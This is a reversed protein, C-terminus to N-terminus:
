GEAQQDNQQARRKLDLRKKLRQQGQKLEEAQELAQPPAAQISDAQSLYAALTSVTPSTFMEAIPITRNFAEQLRSHVQVILLSHGGLDFFNDHIGVREVNLASQWIEAVIRETASQPAVYSVGSEASVQSPDPLARRDVKGNPTLPIELINIFLSPILASPVREQMFCRLLNGTPAPSQHPVIYAVLAKDPSGGGPSDAEWVIVIAAQVNPHQTLTAEVESLEVRVGRIKVQHDIRGIIELAGDARYRGRDGTYDLIDGPDDRFHNPRFRQRTEEPANIYGRSCFSTRIVVQGPEGIGCLQNHHDLVLMQTEPLPWGGPQIGHPPTEPVVFFSKALTTEATGYLNIIGGDPFRARWAQVFTDVLPEGSFFIWRLAPVATSPPLNALWSQALSPVGHLFTVRERALWPMLRAPDLHIGEEPVCLTAGSSLPLFLDRMAVDFSLGIMQASRDQPGIAFLERQWHLFHALGAHTGIVGKPVGTTGSTFCIYAVDEPTIQPLDVNAVNAQHDVADGQQPAVQIVSLTDLEAMWRDAPRYEGVYICRQVGAKQLMLQQRQAPFDQSLLLLVGGSRLVSLASAILGFSRPGTVAVVDGRALGGAILTQALQRSTAALDAYSWSIDGHRIAPHQPTREVWAAFLEPVLPHLPAALPITPDPLVACAKPTRLSYASIPLDPRAAIQELLYCLQDLLSSMREATFRDRQYALRLSIQEDQEEAYLTLAFNAEAEVEDLLDLSLGPLELASRPMNRFNLLVDFIPHRSLTREPQMEEVLKEFPLYQHAYGDLVVERVRGLLEDFRPNGSLDVRLALINVLMGILGETEEWGRNAVPAGVIVDAQEAQRSLVMTFAALLTMFLTGDHSRSLRHLAATLEKPLRISHSEAQASTTATHPYDTPLQLTPLTGGLQQRWYDLEHKGLEGRLWDQQWHAFDVYQIPLAPLVDAGVASRGDALAQAFAQYHSTLERVLVGISWGDAIIHDLVVALVYAEPARRLLLCRLLPGQALDFPRRAEAQALRRVEAAQTEAPLETLDILPLELTLHEAIRQVPQGKVTVFTSRLTEHRRVVANLSAQLVAIQLPGRINVAAHINYASSEPDLQRIFWLRQQAFSLPLEGDRAIVQIPQPPRQDSRQATQVINQALGAITPTEFLRRLPLEQGFSTRIRAILQAALLSHGGLEFFSDHIGIPTVGLVETWIKAIAAEIPTRPAVYQPTVDRRTQAPIPLAKRDLKGNASLPLEDLVVFASPIMYEPLRERLYGRLEAALGETGPVERRLGVREHEETSQEKNEVIYAVLRTDAHGGASPQDTRAVVVAEDCRPHQALATEIEGLEIRFGRVKVQHDLRGLYDINGDPLYRVLDGTKYLRAGITSFPDPIFREATLAPRNLYGRAVGIGGIHLEGAVGVPVPQLASNLVYLQINAIPRGIPVSTRQDDRRCPWYSVDVAAETPGYLNHLQADLLGLCRQQLTFPLAEGSCIIRELSTCAAADPHELFVHLMSPVFHLTTIQQRTILDILYGTDKHGEPQAVVLMAGTMLPWFFEWVSVDFSFPTKQLVRDASTLQYAEQMWLLRNVIGRHTNMVGKPQGTSGSTYIVYALHDGTTLLEPNTTPEHAITPWDTDLCLIQGAQPPLSRSFQAQTLVVSARLDEVMLAMRERPLDPDLPVYAGGAKLVGLLAVVMELSRNLCVGVPQEPGVGRQRLWHALQNARENLQQYSLSDQDYRVAIASPTRSVQQEILVHLPQESPYNASTANWDTVLQCREAASLLPLDALRQEPHDVIGALLVHFHQDMRAITAADFLDTNYRIWGQVGAATETLDLMLDFKTAWNETEDLQLTLQHMTLAPMPTNQLIFMVQFLPTYSLNREPQLAEVLKEFPLDQYTYADLCVGRVQGLLERFALDGSLRSRLVLTNVFMGILPELERRTRNAIPTGVLLDTQDTYHYLLTNFGALLTMFLTVGHRQSLQQLSASLAPSLTLPHRAGQFTQVAPRPRDTPLALVTTSSTGEPGLQQRWYALQQELVENQLWARQWVAFDAYQIPLPELRPPKGTTYAEYLLGLEQVLVGLSWGDAVIHHMNWILVHELPKLQVLTARVLPGHQLDFPQRAGTSILRQLQEHAAPSGTLDITPPLVTSAPEIVQQPQGDVVAIRTRLIEHRQVLSQISQELAMRDLAGNLQVVAGIVYTATGPELQEIFWLREQAFSLPLAGTRPAPQIPPATQAMSGRREQELREALSAVTPAEFLARLAVEIQLSDRLRSVLQTALLSHGGLSFFNDHIGIREVGLVAAWSNALLTQLPTQPAVHEDAAAQSWDPAPLAKRDVKGNPTKPLAPLLVFASPIMFDPLHTQLRQRLLDNSLLASEQAVVYAVLRNHGPQDQRAVVACAQVDPQQQLAQEIEGIEIRFGRIKVQQDIRGLLEITGDSRWRGVDGTRVMLASTEFPCVAFKEATLAPRNLYGRSVSDGAICVEGVVGIPQPQSYPNTIYIRNNQLPQGITIPRERDAASIVAFANVDSIETLGYINVITAQSGLQDFIMEVLQRELREGGILLYRLSTNLQQPAIENLVAQLYSPVADLLHLHHTVLYDLLARGELKVAEPIIHLTRGFILTPFIQNVSIDFSISTILSTNRVAPDDFSGRLGYCLNVLGQQTVMVGKPQGTSGSTYIVYALHGPLVTRPPNSTPYREITSWESDLCFIQTTQAPLQATLRAQTLMIPARTDALMFRLREAPYAPDLPLYAGGAKLIALMGVIMELSREVCLAVLVDPGVGLARLHHALQNARSNLEAYSLSAGDFVIATLDPTRAAQAEILQHVAAERPYDAQSANWDVLMQRREATTLLPLTAIRADPNSVIGHLLTTFHGAMRAITAEDFLDTSYEFWGHFGDPREELNLTLDFKATGSDGEILDLTLGPLHLAATQPAQYAFLVQVLPNHSLDRGPQLERVLVEFPLSQHSQADKVTRSTRRLLEHFSPNDALSTHLVLTNVFFGILDATEGLDRNAVPSGIVLQNQGTYRQLLVQFAALLTTYLTVGERRSLTKIQAALDQSLAFSLRRGQMSAVAPRPRDTPLDLLTPAGALQQRWYDVEAQLVDDQLWEHQWAAYDAYQLPLPALPSDLGASYAGYLVALERVFIGISWGDAIIHHMTLLLVHETASLRILTTRLLPGTALNFPRRAEAAALQEVIQQRENPAHETLDEYAPSLDLEPAIMQVPQGAVTIFTTRLTEHRQVIENLSLRFADPQLTGVLRVAAALNYLPSGAHLQDLFWLQRQAFSLPFTNFESGAEQLLLEFLERQESSLAASYLDEM